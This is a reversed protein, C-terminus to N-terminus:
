KNFYYVRKSKREPDILPKYVDKKSEDKNTEYNNENITNWKFSQYLAQM